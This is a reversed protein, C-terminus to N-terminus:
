SVPKFGPFMMRSEDLESITGYECVEEFKKWMELVVPHSHAKEIADASVWEFVEVITANSSEMIHAPPATALGLSQLTPVHELVIRKLAEDKGAKPKFVAIVFIGM